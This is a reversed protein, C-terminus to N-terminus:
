QSRLVANGKVCLAKPKRDLAADHVARGSEAVEEGLRGREYGPVVAKAVNEASRGLGAWVLEACRQIPDCQAHARADHTNRATQM